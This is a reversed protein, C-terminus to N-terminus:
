QNRKPGSLVIYRSLSRGAYETGAVFYMLPGYSWASPAGLFHLGRISSEFGKSLKPFGNIRNLGMSIESPLFPYRSVDVRYGTGQVVHDVRRSGGDDLELQLEEGFPVAAVVSRGTTIPIDKM